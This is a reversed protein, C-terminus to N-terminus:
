DLSEFGDSFIGDEPLAQQQGLFTAQLGGVLTFEGASAIGAVPEGITFSVRFQGAEVAGGGGAVTPHSLSVGVEGAVAPLWALMLACLAVSVAARPSTCTRSNPEFVRMTVSVWFDYVHEAVGVRVPHPVPSDPDRRGVAVVSSVAGHCGGDIRIQVRTRRGAPMTMLDPNRIPLRAREM